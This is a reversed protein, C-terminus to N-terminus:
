RHEKNNFHNFLGYLSKRTKPIVKTCGRNGHRGTYITKFVVKPVSLGLSTLFVNVNNQLTTHCVPSAAKVVCRIVSFFLRKGAKIISCQLM